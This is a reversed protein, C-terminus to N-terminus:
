TVKEDLHPQYKLQVSNHINRIIQLNSVTESITNCIAGKSTTTKYIYPYSDM